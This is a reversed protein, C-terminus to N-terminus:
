EDEVEVAKTLREEKPLPEGETDTVDFEFRYTGSAYDSGFWVLTDSYVEGAGIRVPTHTLAHTCTAGDYPQGEPSGRYLATGCRDYLVAQSYNNEFRAVVRETSYVQQDTTISLKRESDSTTGSGFDCGSALFAVAVCLPVVTRM